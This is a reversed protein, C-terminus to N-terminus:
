GAPQMLEDFPVAREVTQANKLVWDIVNNETVANEVEALRERQGLYWQIVEAPKEYSQAIQEITRRVQEPRAQLKQAQVIEALLLGLRVRRQAQEAFLQPSLSAQGQPRVGRAALDVRAMEALRQQEAAVLSTPVEFDAVSLLAQMVADRTRERLRAAVERELNVRVEARLKDIDGDTVGLARAFDADLTPLQIQEVRKVTVEFSAQKGALESRPYDSPFTLEFRTKEGARMGRVATEFEPPMRGQGLTFQVDTGSGGAFPAGDIAGVFDVTVRDGDAAAREVGEFTARQRRMIEITKEVEADGVACVPREIRLASVDGLKIEPLVEFTATFSLDDGNSGEIPELRPAGAVRLGSAAVAAHFASGLKDTLVESHVQAGYSAAVMKLPVKGPRFGPMKLTRALRVLRAQVERQLEAASVSLRIRRQLAGLTEISQSM